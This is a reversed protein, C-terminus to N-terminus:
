IMTGTDDEILLPPRPRAEGASSGFVLDPANRPNNLTEVSLKFVFPWSM